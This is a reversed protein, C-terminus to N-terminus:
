FEPEDQITPKFIDKSIDRQYRKQKKAEEFILRTNKRCIGEIDKIVAETTPEILGFTVVDFFRIAGLNAIFDPVVDIGRSAIIKDGKPSIPINAGEVILSARVSQANYIDIVDELAAPILIDCEVDLWEGNSRVEYNTEFTDEDMEGRRNKGAILKDIDLGDQCTVLVNADSIGVIKYGMKKMLYACSAGVCGFGQIVVKAGNAGGHKFKWAEDAAYATGYGTIVDNLYFGDVKEGLLKDVDEQGKQFVPDNTQPKTQPIKMGLEDFIKLVDDYSTGLDGGVALGMDIYPRMATIYRKLVDYYDKEKNSYVIGGKCGGTTVSECANYKYAMGTALRVVEEKTVTPHMRIGGGAYGKVLNYICLWGKAETQTDNWELIMYPKM